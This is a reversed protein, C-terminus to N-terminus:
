RSYRRTAAAHLEGHEGVEQDARMRGNAAVLQEGAVRAPVPGVERPERQDARLSPGPAGPWSPWAPRRMAPVPAPRGTMLEVQRAAQHLLLEFGSVVVAGARSAATALATPWPHYVVDM